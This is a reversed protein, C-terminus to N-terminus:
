KIRKILDSFIKEGMREAQRQPTMSIRKNFVFKEGKREWLKEMLFSEVQEAFQRHGKHGQMQGHVYNRVKYAYYTIDMQPLLIEIPTSNDIVSKIGKIIQNETSSGVRNFHGGMRYFPSRATSHYRDGTMGVYYYKRSKYKIGVLYVYYGVNFWDSELKIITPKLQLKM